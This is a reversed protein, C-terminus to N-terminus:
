SSFAATRAAAARVEADVLAELVTQEVASLSANADRQVRWKSMLEQLRQQQQSDFFSDPRLNQV